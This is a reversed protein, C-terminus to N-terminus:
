RPETAAPLGVLELLRLANTTTAVGPRLRHDFSMPPESGPPHLTERFHVTQAVAALPGAGALSLDHTSIAGIAGQGLLHELVRRVAIQREASNTGRLIEDLLFLFRGPPRGEAAEVVAKLRELEAMFFSTGRALSDEIRISTGIELPPMALEDACVPAGAQALVANVGLARLLTSKGSMNSGTVLLFTGPPGVEVDNTVRDPPLLPHGLGRAVLRPEAGEDVVPFAWRPEDHALLALAALAEVNGLTEFWGRVQGGAKAQWVEIRRLVHLDWLSFAEVVDHIMSFRLDSLVVLGHLREMEEDVALGTATLQARAEELLPAELRAAPLRRLHEFVRAYRGLEGQRQSVRAFVGYLGKRLSFSVALNFLLSGLWVRYPLVGAVAAALLVLSLAPLIWAAVGALRRSRLWPEEEAWALFRDPEPAGDGLQRARVELEQRFGLRPALAAVVQQRRRIEEPPSPNILWRGLTARGPPTAVVGLLHSVSAPGFLDLDRALDARHVALRPAAPPEPLEEWQRHWRALAQRNALALAAWREARRIVRGHIRALFVFVVGAVLAALYPAPRPHGAQWLVMLLAAVIALFVVLRAASLRGSLREARAELRAFRAERRRYRAVVPNHDDIKTPEDM